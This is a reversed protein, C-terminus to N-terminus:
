RGSAVPCGVGPQGQCRVQGTTWLPGNARPGCRDLVSHPVGMRPCAPAHRRGSVSIAPHLLGGGALSDGREWRDPVRHRGPRAWCIWSKLDGGARRTTANGAFMTGAQYRGTSGHWRIVVLRCATASGAILCM